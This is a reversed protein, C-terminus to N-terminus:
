EQIDVKMGVKVFKALERLENNHMRVCGESARTGISGPDHTGHIGIGSWGPTDLSIFLPGYAGKIEGKGDGFDHTWYSADCLEDVTFNGDPTRLDGVAEKQGQNKGIAVKYTKIPVKDQM